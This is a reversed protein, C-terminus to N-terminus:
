AEMQSFPISVKLEETQGEKNNKSEDMAKELKKMEAKAATQAEQAAKVAAQM